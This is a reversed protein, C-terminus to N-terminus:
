EDTIIDSFANTEGVCPAPGGCNKKGLTFAVGSVFVGPHMLQLYNGSIAEGTQPNKSRLEIQQLSEPLSAFLQDGRWVETGRKDDQNKSDLFWESPEWGPPM